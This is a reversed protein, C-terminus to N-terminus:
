RPDLRLGASKFAAEIQTAFAFRHRHALQLAERGKRQAEEERNLRHLAVAQTALAQSLRLKDNLKTSIDAQEQSLALSEAVDPTLQALNGLISGLGDINNERRCVQGARRLMALGRECDGSANIVLAQNELIIPLIAKNQTQLALSEAENLYKLALESDGPCMDKANRNQTAAWKEDKDANM